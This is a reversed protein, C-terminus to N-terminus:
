GSQDTRAPRLREVCDRVAREFDGEEPIDQRELLDTVWGRYSAEMGHWRQQVFDLPATAGSKEQSWAALEAALVVAAPTQLVLGEGAEVLARAARGSPDRLAYAFLDAEIADRHVVTFTRFRRRPPPAPVPAPPLDETTESHRLPRKGSQADALTQRLVQEPLSFLQATEQLMLERRIPDGVEAITMLAQKSGREIAHRDDGAASVANRLFQLYPVASDLIANVAAVGGQMVLDAPDVGTPLCAVEAEQGTALSLHCAKVAAQRGARDGDFLMVVKDAGRRLLRAQDPTFATGCTAVVNAIGAQALAILDLYGEVLVATKRRAIVMRSADFGYLLKGKSYYPSDGSNIYKPEGPGLIRGGFGAVQRAINRIPFIVRERFYAFPAGREGKRVLGASIALEESVGSRALRKPLWEGAPAYGVGFRDLVEPTFGRRELYARADRGLRDDQYAERFAAAAAENARFFARKDGEDAGAELFRALDIDLNRALTEVAEPFAIAEVAMLFSIADGGEGCGFCKYTQRAPNVNFSPTKENHFPCLGKWSAGGPRLRVYRGVLEVIDTEDKIRAIIEPPFATM